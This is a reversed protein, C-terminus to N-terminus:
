DRYEVDTGGPIYGVTLKLLFLDERNGAEPVRGSQVIMGSVELNPANPLFVEKYFFSSSPVVGLKDFDARSLEVGRTEVHFTSTTLDGMWSPPPLGESDLPTLLGDSSHAMLHIGVLTRFPTNAFAGGDPNPFVGCSDRLPERLLANELLHLFHRFSDDLLEAHGSPWRWGRRNHGARQARELVDTSTSDTTARPGVDPEVYSLLQTAPGVDPEVYSLLQTAFGMRPPYNSSIVNRFLRSAHRIPHAQQQRKSSSIMNRFSRNVCLLPNAPEPHLLGQYFRKWSHEMLHTNLRLIEEPEGVNGNALADFIAHLAPEGPLYSCVSPAIFDQDLPVAAFSPGTLCFISFLLSGVSMM